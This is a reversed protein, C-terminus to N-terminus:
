SKSECDAQMLRLLIAGFTNANEEKFVPNVVFSRGEIRYTTSPAEGIVTLMGFKQGILSPWEWM